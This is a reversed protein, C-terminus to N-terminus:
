HVQSQQSGIPHRVKDSSPIPALISLTPETASPPFLFTDTTPTYIFLFKKIFYFFKYTIRCNPNYNLGHRIWHPGWIFTITIQAFNIQIYIEVDMDGGDFYGPHYKALNKYKVVCVLQFLFLIFDKCFCKWANKTM